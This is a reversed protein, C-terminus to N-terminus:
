QLYSYTLKVTYIIYSRKGTLRTTIQIKTSSLRSLSHSISGVTSVDSATKAGNVKWGAIKASSPITFTWVARAYSSGTSQSCDLWLSSISPGSTACGGGTAKQAARGELVISKTITRRGPTVVANVPGYTDSSENLTSDVLFGVKYTGKAVLNGTSSNRGNWAFGFKWGSDGDTPGYKPWKSSTYVIRGALTRVIMTAKAPHTTRFNATWSDPHDAVLPYFASGSPNQFGYLEANPPVMGVTLYRGYDISTPAIKRVRISCSYPSDPITATYAVVGVAPDETVVTQTYQNEQDVCSVQTEYTGPTKGTYDVSYHLDEGRIAYATAYHGYGEVYKVPKGNVTAVDPVLLAGSAVTIPAITAVIAATMALATTRLVRPM